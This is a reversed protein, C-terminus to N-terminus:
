DTRNASCFPWEYKYSNSDWETTCIDLILVLFLFVVQALNFHPDLLFRCGSTYEYGASDSKLPGCFSPIIAHFVFIRHWNVGHYDASDCLASSAESQICKTTQDSSHLPHAANYMVKLLKQLIRRKVIVELPELITELVSGTRKDTCASERLRQLQHQQGLLHRYMDSKYLIHLVKRWLNLFYNRHQYVYLLYLCLCVTLWLKKLFFFNKWM